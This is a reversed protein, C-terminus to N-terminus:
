NLNIEVRVPIGQAELQAKFAQWNKKSLSGARFSRSNLDKTIITCNYPGKDHSYTFAIERVDNLRFVKKQWFFLHNKIILYEDSLGFYHMMWGYILYLIPTLGFLVFVTDTHRMPNAYFMFIFALMIGWFSLGRFSFLTSGKFYDFVIFHDKLETHNIPKVKQYNIAQNTILLAELFTKLEGPEKYMRDIIFRKEGNKFAIEAGETQGQIWGSAHSQSGTLKLHQIESLPYKRKGFAIQHSDLVIPVSFLFYKYLGIFCFCLLGLTILIGWILHKDEIAINYSIVLLLGCFVVMGFVSLIFTSTNRKSHIM